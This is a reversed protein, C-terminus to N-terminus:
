NVGFEVLITDNIRKKQEAAVIRNFEEEDKELLAKIIPIANDPFYRCIDELSNGLTVLDNTYFPMYEPSHGIIKQFDKEIDVIDYESRKEIFSSKPKGVEEIHDEHISIIDGKYPLCDQPVVHISKGDKYACLIDEEHKLAAQSPVHYEGNEYYYYSATTILIDNKTVMIQDRALFDRFISDVYMYINTHIIFTGDSETILTLTSKKAIVKFPSILKTIDRALTYASKTTLSSAFKRYFYVHTPPSEREDPHKFIQKKLFLSMIGIDIDSPHAINLIKEWINPTKRMLNYQQKPRKYPSNIVTIHGQFSGLLVRPLGTMISNLSFPHYLVTHPRYGEREIIDENDLARKM